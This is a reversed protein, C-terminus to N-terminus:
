SQDKIGAWALAKELTMFSHFETALGNRITFADAIRGDIWKTENKLRVHVHVAAVVKEGSVYFREPTCSGEAWTDRGKSLNEAMEKHGRFNAQDFENREIQPDLFELYQQIDNKNLAEYIKRVVDTEATKM